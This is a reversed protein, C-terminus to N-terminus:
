QGVVRFLDLTQFAAADTNGLTHRMTEGGVTVVIEVKRRLGPAETMHELKGWNTQHCFVGPFAKGCAGAAKAPDNGSPDEINNFDSYFINGM